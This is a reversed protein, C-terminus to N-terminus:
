NEDLIGKGSFGRNKAVHKGQSKLEEKYEYWLKELSDPVPNKSLELARIIDGAYKGQDTTILTYAYGKNGARGTRRFVIM